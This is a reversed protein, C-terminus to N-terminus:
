FFKLLRIKWKIINKEEKSVRIKIKHLLFVSKHGTIKEKKLHVM